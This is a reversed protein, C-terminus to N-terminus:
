GTNDHLGLVKDCSMVWESDVWTSRKSTVESKTTSEVPAIPAKTIPVVTVCALAAPSFPRPFISHRILLSEIETKWDNAQGIIRILHGNPYVSDMPWNDFTLVV